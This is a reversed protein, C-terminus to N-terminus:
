PQPRTAVVDKYLRSVIAFIFGGSWACMLIGILGEMSSLLRWAVPPLVDGYGITAYTVASFYLAVEFSPQVNQWAYVLAWLAIEALHALVCWIAVRALLAYHSWLSHSLVRRHGLSWTMWGMVAGHIAVTLAVMAAGLLLQGPIPM